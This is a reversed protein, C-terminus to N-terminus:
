AIGTTMSALAFLTRKDYQTLESMRTEHNLNAAAIIKDVKVRHIYRLRMLVKAVRLTGAFDPTEDLFDSFLLEGSKLKKLLTQQKRRVDNALALNPNCGANYSM